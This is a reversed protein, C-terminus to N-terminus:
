PKVLPQRFNTLMGCVFFLQDTIGAMSNPLNMLIRFSKIRGIAREVHIRLSAIRRTEVLQDETLQTDMKLPPINLSVGLPQLLDAILFGKDAMISDGPELLDLFGSKITLERDSICGGFLKSVFSIAGSPTIGILAKLTNHNKYSSFTLQQAVPSSPQEIFIETADIVCRTTPYSDKFSTPMYYQVQQKPPWIPVEKFKHYLFNIWTNFIRSVSTQSINFRFAIDEELLHLRLRCLVLLFENKPSLSRRAGASSQRPSKKMEYCLKHVSPGLFNFCINFTSYNPFGTYLQILNKRDAINEICLGHNLMPITQTVVHALETTDTQDARHVREVPDTNTFACAYKVQVTSTANTVMSPKAQVGVTTAPDSASSTSVDNTRDKPPQRSWPFVTPFDREKRVGHEFHISCVKM